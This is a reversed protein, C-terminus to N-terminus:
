DEISRWRTVDSEWGTLYSFWMNMSHLSNYFSGVHFTKGEPKQVIFFLDMADDPLRDKVSVWDSATKAQEIASHRNGYWWNAYEVDSPSPGLEELAAICLELAETKTM